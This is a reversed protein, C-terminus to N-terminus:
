LRIVKVGLENHSAMNLSNALTPFLLEIDNNRSTNWSIILDYTERMSHIFHILIASTHSENSRFIM